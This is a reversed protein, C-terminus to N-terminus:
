KSELAQVLRRLNIKAGKEQDACYHGKDLIGGTVKLVIEYTPARGRRELAAMRAKFEGSYRSAVCTYFEDSVDGSGGDNLAIRNAPMLSSFSTTTAAAVTQVTIASFTIMLTIVALKDTGYSGQVGKAM